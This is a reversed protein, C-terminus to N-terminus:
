NFVARVCTVFRIHFSKDVVFAIQTFQRLTLDFKWKGLLEKVAVFAKKRNAGAWVQGIKFYELGDKLKAKHVKGFAGQGM